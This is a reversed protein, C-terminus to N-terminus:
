YRLGHGFRFLPEATDFPVDSRSAVVAAMSRPLDFPLAGAPHSRGFLVDLLAADCCGYTAVIASAEDPLSALIAPRDLHVDIVTPVARCLGILRDLETEPFQLSGAHFLREFGRVRLEYPSKIRVLAIDADAADATVSCYRSLVEADVGEAYAVLGDSLPLTAHAGGRNTLVTVSRCQAKFGADRFEARGVTVAARDPDVLPAEFLGLRFKERLLRRASEDVRAEPVRQTRVLNVLAGTCTEGGFQDVGADLAKVIREELTLEEVGWARAPVTEGLFDFDTLLGWDTCIIGDFRLRRRLLDTIVARNFGFGVEEFATGVPMGYYPMIQSGGSEIAAIFPQLHLDFCGGPYVQERGYWFHPDEGDRQAGGGPFHKTMTSVSNPGLAPGQLGRIYATLLESTLAVDEGFTGSIRCWRPETALDVQPHLAVRLGVALYEQRVADAFERVLEASRTAALGIPDPWQSFPGALAATLPNDTFGHRPDTSFTVPIGIGRDLAIRQVANHWEAFSRGDPQAGLVNFHSMHREIILSAVSPQGLVQSQPDGPIAMTHFMLGVKDELTLRGLLDEVRQDLLTTPVEFPCQGKRGNTSM